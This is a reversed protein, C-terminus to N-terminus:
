AAEEDMLRAVAHELRETKQSKILESLTGHYRIKGEVLFIIDDALEEIESTIHTTLLITKGAEKESRVLNKFKISSQPDLGATPEDFILLEPSFMLTIVASVKQRTGGSLNGLRKELYPSIGFYEILEDAKNEKKDRIEQIFRIVEKVKMNEPYRGIQPMYGINNRYEHDGAVETGNLRIIGSDPKVLGLICKILTTKGSANPGVVGTTTGPQIELNLDKLVHLSGFSKNLHEIRIM